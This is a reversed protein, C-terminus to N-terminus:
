AGQLQILDRALLAAGVLGSNPYLKPPVIFSDMDKLVPSSLYGGLLRTLHKRIMPFLAEHHMVGGGLLIREPSVAMLATVCVQALYYAELEWGFHDDPLEQAPMAWRTQISPGSALGEACNEHYPCIGRTLPDEPHRSLVIHGWEPHILGHVLKGESMLGGGIGTGITLYLCNRLDKAAGQEIEALVAGNVDTDIACPVKLADRIERLLPFGRWALKPTNTLSGFDPSDPNLDLPGFSAIGFADLEEGEFFALIEPLTEEPLRTQCSGSRLIQGSGDTLGMVMKTGGAELAGLRM